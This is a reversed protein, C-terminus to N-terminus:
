HELTVLHTFRYGRSDAHFRVDEKEQTEGAEENKQFSFLYMLALESWMVLGSAFTLNEPTFIYLFNQTKKNNKKVMVLTQHHLPMTPIMQAGSADTVLPGKAKKTSKLAERRKVSGPRTTLEGTGKGRMQVM